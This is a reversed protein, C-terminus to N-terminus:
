NERSWTPPLDDLNFLQLNDIFLTYLREEPFDNIRLRWRKEDVIAEYPFDPDETKQWEIKRNVYRFHLLVLLPNAMSYALM